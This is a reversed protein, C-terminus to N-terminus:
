PPLVLSTVSPLHADGDTLGVKVRLRHHHEMSLLEYVVWLRPDSGPWDTATISSCFALSLDDDDRLWELTELLEDRDVISTAEDRSVITDPCRTRVREALESPSLRAAAHSSM